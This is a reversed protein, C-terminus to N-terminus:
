AAVSERAMSALEPVPRWAPRLSSRPGRTVAIDIDPHRTHRFFGLLPHGTDAWRREGSAIEFSMVRHAINGVHRLPVPAKSAFVDSFLLQEYQRDIPSRATVIAEDIRAQECFQFCAKILAMKVMRGTRGEAIGLRSVEALRRTQLWLPLAVSAEVPLDQRLNTQIRVSGLASGDLKSEALLVVTDGDYDCDEPTSLSRAFEPLHRAYAAHRISVAKWLDEETQVRRITFPLRQTVMPAQADRAQANAQALLALLRQATVAHPLHEMAFSRSSNGYLILKRIANDLENVFEFSRYLL